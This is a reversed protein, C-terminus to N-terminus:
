HFRHSIQKLKIKILERIVKGKSIVGYKYLIRDVEMKNLINSSAGGQRYNTLIHNIEKFKAGHKKIRLFFEYDAALRYSTDFLGFKDHTKRSVYTSPHLFIGTPEMFDPHIRRIEMERGDPTVIRTLGYYVDYGPNKLYEEVAKEASDPEIWDDSNLNGILEGNSMKVAKNMADYIGRDPESIWKMRGDFAPEYKKIIDMTGDTSAGDVIVYEINAYTQRLVSEITQVLTKASNFCVTTISIKPLNNM